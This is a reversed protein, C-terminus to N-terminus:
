GDNDLEPNMGVSVSILAIGSFILKPATIFAFPDVAADVVGCGVLGVGMWFAGKKRNEDSM